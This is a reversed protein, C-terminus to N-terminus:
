SGFYATNLRPDDALSAASGDKVIRGLEMLYGRDAVSLALRANQEVIVATMGQTRLTAIAEFIQQVVPPALGISPEDLLIAVPETMLARGIAVMQQEGSSLTAVQQKRQEKLKPLLAYVRELSAAADARRRHLYGGLRLNDEVSLVGFLDRSKSVLVMGRAVRQETALDDICHGRYHVSGSTLPLVGMAANLLTTKGAGNAGIVAIFEGADARICVGDLAVAKGYAVTLNELSLM